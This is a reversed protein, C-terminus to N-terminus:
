ILGERASLGLQKILEVRDIGQVEAVAAKRIEVLSKIVEKQAKTFSVGVKSLAAIGELGSVRQDKEAPM